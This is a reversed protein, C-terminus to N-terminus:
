IMNDNLKMIRVTLITLWDSTFLAIKEVNDM